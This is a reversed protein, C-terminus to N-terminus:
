EILEEKTELSGTCLIALNEDLVAYVGVPKRTIPALEAQTLPMTHVPVLDECYAEVRKKTKPSLDAALLVLWARGRGVNDAVPDFGMALKGARRCLSLASYLKDKHM